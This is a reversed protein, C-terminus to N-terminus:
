QLILWIISAVFFGFFFGLKMNVRSAQKEVWLGMEWKKNNSMPDFNQEKWGYAAVLKLEPDSISNMQKVDFTAGRYEDPVDFGYFFNVVSKIWGLFSVHNDSMMAKLASCILFYPIQRLALLFLFYSSFSFCRCCFSM